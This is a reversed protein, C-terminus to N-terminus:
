RDHSTEKRRARASKDLNKSDPWGSEVAKKVVAIALEKASATAARLEQAEVVSGHVLKSRLNYINGLTKFTEDPNRQEGLFIAGYLSFRYKLEVPNNDLLAAELAIVFDLFGSEQWHKGCGKLVRFLAIERANGEKGSFDPIKYALDVVKEFEKKTIKKDVVNSKEDLPFPEWSFRGHMWKPQDFSIVEGSSSIEYGTLFLALAVRISLTSLDSLEVRPRSTSVTIVSSPMFNPFTFPPVFEMEFEHETRTNYRTEYFTGREEKSLTRITVGRYTYRATPKVGAIAFQKLNTIEQSECFEDFELILRKALQPESRDLRKLLILYHLSLKTLYRVLIAEAGSLSPGFVYPRTGLDTTDNLYNALPELQERLGVFRREISNDQIAFQAEVSQLGSIRVKKNETSWGTGTGVV